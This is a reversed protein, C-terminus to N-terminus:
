MRMDELPFPSKQRVTLGFRRMGIAVAGVWHTIEAHPSDSDSNFSKHLLLPEDIQLVKCKTFAIGRYGSM